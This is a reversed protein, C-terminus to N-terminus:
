KNIYLRIITPMLTFLKKNYHNIPMNSEYNKKLFFHAMRLRKKNIKTKEICNITFLYVFTWYLNQRHSSKFQPGRTNSAVARGVSGCGSGEKEQKFPCLSAFFSGTQTLLRWQTASPPYHNVLIGLHIHLSHPHLDLLYCEILNTWTRLIVESYLLWVVKFYHM